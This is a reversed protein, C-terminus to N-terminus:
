VYCCEEKKVFEELLEFDVDYGFYCLGVIEIGKDMRWVDDVLLVMVCVCKGYKFVEMMVLMLMEFDVMCILDLIIVILEGNKEM